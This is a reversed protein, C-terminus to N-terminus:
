ESAKLAQDLDWQLDDLDELGVSLRVLDDTIGGALKEESQYNSIRPPRRGHIWWARPTAWTPSTPFCSCPMQYLAARSPLGGRIGFTFLVGGCGLPLYRDALTRYASTALGPYNVWEVRDHNQLFQAVALAHKSHCEMRLKLTNLGRCSCFLILPSLAYEARLGASRRGRAAKRHVRWTASPKM